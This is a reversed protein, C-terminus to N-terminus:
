RIRHIELLLLQKHEKNLRQLLSRVTHVTLRGCQARKLVHEVWRLWLSNTDGAILLADTTEALLGDLDSILEDAEEVTVVDVVADAQNLM